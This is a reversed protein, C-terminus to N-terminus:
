TVHLLEFLMGTIREHVEANIRGIKMRVLRQSVSFVRDVKVKSDVILNGSELENNTVLIAYDRLKLNSTLPVAVFDESRRNYKDNSLVITPRVKSSELDSFPFTLLVIDRQFIM